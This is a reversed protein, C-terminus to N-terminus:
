LKEWEEESEQGKQDIGVVFMPHSLSSGVQTDIGDWLIFSSSTAAYVEECLHVLPISFDIQNNYLLKQHLM